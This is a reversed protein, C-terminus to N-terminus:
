GISCHLYLMGGDCFTRNSVAARSCLGRLMPVSGQGNVRHDQAVCKVEQLGGEAEEEIIIAIESLWSTCLLSDPYVRM